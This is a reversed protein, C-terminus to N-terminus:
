KLMEIVFKIIRIQNKIKKIIKENKYINKSKEQIAKWYEKLNGKQQIM